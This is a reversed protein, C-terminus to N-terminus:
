DGTKGAKLNNINRSSRTISIVSLVLFLISGLCSLALLSVFTAHQVPDVITLTELTTGFSVAAGSCIGLFALHVGSYPSLAADLQHESITLIRMKSRVYEVELPNSQPRPPRPLLNDAM